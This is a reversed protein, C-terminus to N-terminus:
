IIEIENKKCYEKYIEPTKDDFIFGDFVSLDVMKTLSVKDFKSYDAALYCLRSNQYITQNIELEEYAGHTVGKDLSIAMIGMFAKDINFSKLFENAEKGYFAGSYDRLKGGPMYVTIGPISSAKLAINLSLTILNVDNLDEVYDLIFEVTSGANLAITDGDKILKAAKRAIMQKEPINHTRKKLINMEATTQNLVSGRVFAGGYALEIGYEKALYKLDRRITAEGVGYKKSLHAVKVSGKNLISNFIEKRREVHQM